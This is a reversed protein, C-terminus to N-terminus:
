LFLKGLFHGVVGGVVAGVIAGLPGGLATGIIAGATVGFAGGYDKKHFLWAAALGLGAGAAAGLLGATLFGQMGGLLGAGGMILGTSLRGGTPQDRGPAPPASKAAAALAGPRSLPIGKKVVRKGDDAVADSRLAGGEFAVDAADKAQVADSAEVAAQGVIAAGRARTSADEGHALAAMLLVAVTLPAMKLLIVPPRRIM